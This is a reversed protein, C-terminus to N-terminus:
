VEKLEKRSIICGKPITIVRNFSELCADGVMKLVNNDEYFLLGVSTIFKTDMEEAEHQCFWEGAYVSSDAWEIKLIKM